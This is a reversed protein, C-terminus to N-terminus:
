HVLCGETETAADTMQRRDGTTQRRDTTQRDRTMIESVVRSVDRLIEGGKYSIPTASSTSTLNQM